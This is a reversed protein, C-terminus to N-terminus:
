CQGPGHCAGANCQPAPCSARTGPKAWIKHQGLSRPKIWAPLVSCRRELAGQRHALAATSLQRSRHTDASCCHPVTHQQAEALKLQSHNKLSVSDELECLTASTKDTRSNFLLAAPGILEFQGWAHWRTTTQASTTTRNPLQPSPPPAPTRELLTCCVFVVLTNCSNLEHRPCCVSPQMYVLALKCTSQRHATTAHLSPQKGYHTLRGQRGLPTAHMVHPTRCPTPKHISRLTVKNQQLQRVGAMRQTAVTRYM